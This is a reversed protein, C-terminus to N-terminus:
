VSGTARLVSIPLVLLCNKEGCDTKPMLIAAVTGDDDIGIPLEGGDAYAMASLMEVVDWAIDSPKSRKRRFGSRDFASKRDFFQGEALTSWCAINDMRTM